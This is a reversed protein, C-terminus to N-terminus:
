AKRELPLRLTARTGPEADELTLSAAVGYTAHLRQRLNNLAIGNSKGNGKRPRAAAAARGQGDDHVEVVLLGSEARTRIRVQGGDVTPELGHHVANEVLPQLILPPLQVDDLASDHEVSFRLREEMRTQLLTLYAQVVGLEHQLSSRGGRLQALSARLYDTFAELVSKAKAADHDILASVNALTNFLFHPEIQAQLLQLRAEAERREAEIARAKNAFILNFVLAILGFLLLMRVLQDTDGVGFFRMFNGGALVVGLPWAFVLVVIPLGGFLWSRRRFSMQRIRHPGLWSYMAWYALYISIGITLSVILNKGYWEAWGAWNRWAGEGSAFIVFGVVTFVAAIAMSFLVTLAFRMWQPTQDYADYSFFTRWAQAFTPRPHVAAM